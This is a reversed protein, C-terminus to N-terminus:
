SSGEAVLRDLLGRREWAAAAVQEDAARRVTSAFPQRPAPLDERVARM